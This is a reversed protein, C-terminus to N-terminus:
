CIVGGPGRGGPILGPGSWPVRWRRRPLPVPSGAVPPPAAPRAIGGGAARAYDGHHYDSAYDGYDSAYDGYDSAYDGYDSIM